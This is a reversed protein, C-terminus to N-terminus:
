TNIARSKKPSKYLLPRLAQHHEPKRTSFLGSRAPHRVYGFEGIDRPSARKLAVPLQPRVKFVPPVSLFV